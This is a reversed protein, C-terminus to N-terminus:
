NSWLDLETADEKIIMRIKAGELKARHMEWDAVRYGVQEDVNDNCSIGRCLVLGPERDVKLSQSAEHIIPDLRNQAMKSFQVLDACANMYASRVSDHREKNKLYDRYSKVQSVIAAEAGKSRLASSNLPKVEWLVLKPTGEEWHLAALDVRLATPVGEYAPMAMELDVVSPNRGVIADVSRKEQGHWFATNEIWTKLTPLGGYTAARREATESGKWLAEQGILHAYKQDKFDTWVYKAHITMRAEANGANEAGFSVRAVSQGRRYFNLYGDRIALRLGHTGAPIGSPVWLSLLDKWWNDTKADHLSQLAAWKVESLGKKFEGMALDGVM